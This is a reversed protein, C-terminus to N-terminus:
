FQQCSKCTCNKQKWHDTENAVVEELILALCTYINYDENWYQYQHDQMTISEQTGVVGDGKSTSSGVIHGTDDFETLQLDKNISYYM